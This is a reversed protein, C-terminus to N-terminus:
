EDGVVVINRTNGGPYFSCLLGRITEEHSQSLCVTRNQRSQM